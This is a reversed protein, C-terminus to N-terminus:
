ATAAVTAPNLSTASQKDAYLWGPLSSLQDSAVPSAEQLREAISRASQAYERASAIFSPDHDLAWLRLSAHAMAVLTQVQLSSAHLASASANAARLQRLASHLRGWRPFTHAVLARVARRKRRLAQKEGMNRPMFTGAMALAGMEYETLAIEYQSHLQASADISKRLCRNARLRLYPRALPNAVQTARRLCAGALRWAQARTESGANQSRLALALAERSAAHARAWRQRAQRRQALLQYADGVLLAADATDCALAVQLSRALGRFPSSASLAIAGLRERAATIETLMQEAMAVDPREGALALRARVRLHQIWVRRLRCYEIGAHLSAQNSMDYELDSEARQQSKEYAQEALTLDRTAELPLGRTLMIQARASVVDALSCPYDEARAIAAGYSLWRIGLNWRGSTFFTEKLMRTFALVDTDPMSRAGLQSWAMMGLINPFEENLDLTLQGDEVARYYDLLACGAALEADTGARSRAVRATGRGLKTIHYRQRDAPVHKAGVPRLYGRLVCTHILETSSAPARAINPQAGAGDASLRKALFSLVPAGVSDGDLLSLGAIFRTEVASFESVTLKAIARTRIEDEQGSTSDLTQGVAGIQELSRDYQYLDSLRQIIGPSMGILHPALTRLMGRTIRKRKRHLESKLLEVAQERTFPEMEIRTVEVPDHAGRARQAAESLHAGVRALTVTNHTGYLAPLVWEFPFLADDAQDIIILWPREERAFHEAIAASMTEMTEGVDGPVEGRLIVRRFVLRAMRKSIQEDSEGPGAEVSQRDGRCMIVRGRYKKILGRPTVYHMLTTKGTDREGHVIVLHPTDGPLLADTLRRELEPRNVYNEPLRNFERKSLEIDELDIGLVKYILEQLFRLKDANDLLEGIAFIAVLLGGGVLQVTRIRAITLITHSIKRLLSPDLALAGALAAVVFVVILISTARKRRERKTSNAM